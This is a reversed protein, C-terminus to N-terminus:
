SHVVPMASDISHDNDGHLSMVNMRCAEYPISMFTGLRCNVVSRITSRCFKSVGLCDDVKTCLIILAAEM